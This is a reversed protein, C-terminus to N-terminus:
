IIIADDLLIGGSRLHEKDAATISYGEAVILRNGNFHGTRYALAAVADGTGTDTDDCLICNATLAENAAAATGLIVMQGTGAEGGSLALATGRKLVGQGAKLKVVFTDAPLYVSNVLGDYEMEHVREDLRSM